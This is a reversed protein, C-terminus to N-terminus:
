LIGLFALHLLNQLMQFHNFYTVVFGDGLKHNHAICCVLLSSIFIHICCYKKREFHNDHPYSFLLAYNKMKMSTLMIQVSSNFVKKFKCMVEEVKLWSSIVLWGKSKGAIKLIGARMCQDYEIWLDWGFEMWLLSCTCVHSFLYVSVCWVQIVSMHLMHLLKFWM